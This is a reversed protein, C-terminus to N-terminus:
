LKRGANQFDLVELHHLGKPTIQIHWKIVTDKERHKRKVRHILGNVELKTFMKTSTFDKILSAQIYDLGWKRQIEALERLKATQFVTLECMIM